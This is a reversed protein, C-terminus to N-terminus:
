GKPGLILWAILGVVPLILILVIWIVKKATSAGSGITKVIAYINAVLLLLGFFGTFEIM